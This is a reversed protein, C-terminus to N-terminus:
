TSDPIFGVSVTAMSVRLPSATANPVATALVSSISLAVCPIITLVSLTRIGLPVYGFSQRYFDFLKFLRSFKISSQSGPDGLAWYSLPPFDPLSCIVVLLRLSLGPSLFASYGTAWEPGRPNLDWGRRWVKNEKFVALLFFTFQM